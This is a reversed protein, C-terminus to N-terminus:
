RGVHAHIYAIVYTNTNTLKSTPTRTHRYTICWIVVFVFADECLRIDFEGSMSMSLSMPVSGSESVFVCVCIQRKM